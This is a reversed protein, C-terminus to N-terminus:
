PAIKVQGSAPYLNEVADEWDHSVFVHRVRESLCFYALWACDSVLTILDWGENHLGQRSHVISAAIGAVISAVFTWRLLKLMGPDRVFLLFTAVAAVVFAMLIRPVGVLMLLPFNQEVTFNQPVFGETEGILVFVSVIIGAYLTWYFYLLWGGIQDRKKKACIIWAVIGGLTFPPGTPQYASDAWAPAALALLITLSALFRRPM